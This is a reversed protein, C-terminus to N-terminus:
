RLSLTEAESLIVSGKILIPGARRFQEQSGPVNCHGIQDGHSMEDPPEVSLNAQHFAEVSVRAIRWGSEYMAEVTNGNKELRKEAKARVSDDESLSEALRADLWDQLLRRPTALHPSYVSLGPENSQLRFARPLIDYANRDDPVLRRLVYVFTPDHEGGEQM